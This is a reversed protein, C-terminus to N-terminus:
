WGTIDSWYRRFAAGSTDRPVGFPQLPGLIANGGDVTARIGWQGFDTPGIMGYRLDTAEVTTRGQGDPTARWLVQDMSFWEFLAGERSRRVAAVAEGTGQPYAGWAIPKPNLLSYYGVHAADPTVAVVRRFYPQFLLPYAHIKAPRGFDAAAIREIRDNIAWGAFSYLVIFLLAVGAADHAVAPRTRKRGGIVLAVVLALSYIPDIIPMSDVAFRTTTLPWLLQTGYSTFLDILPHTLLALISLWMWARLTDDAAPPEATRWRQFRWIAWGMLPGVMPGFFLSHTIGRHHEWEAFRGGSMGAIVDLDPLSAIIAGAVLAKRGLSRRFGAQAVTAGFLMQTISDM